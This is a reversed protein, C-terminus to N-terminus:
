IALNVWMIRYALIIIGYVINKLMTLILESKKPIRTKHPSHNNRGQLGKLGYRQVQQIFLAIKIHDAHSFLVLQEDFAPSTEVKM